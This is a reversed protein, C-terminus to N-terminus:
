QRPRVTILVNVLFGSVVGAWLNFEFAERGARLAAVGALQQGRDFEMGADFLCYLMIAWYAAMMGTYLRMLNRRWGVPLRFIGCLPVLLLTCTLATLLAALGTLDDDLVAIPIMALGLAILGAIWNSQRIEERTLALRGFRNLRLLLNFLPKALWSLLAFGFLACLAPLAFPQLQPENQAAAGLARQLVFLGVIVTWQTAPSLRGMWLFFGLMQRYLWYRARLSEILGERAFENTPDIRLSERFHHLAEGPKRAHLLAWGRGTHALSDQPDRRLAEATEEVADAKRGLRLLAMTRVASCGAHTPDYSLGEEAAHVAATANRLELFISARVAHFSANTPDIRLAEAISEESEKWRYQKILLRAQAYHAYSLGPDFRIAQGVERQAPEVKGQDLYCLALVAHAFAHGPDAALAQKLEIEAASYRNQQYLLLGREFHLDVPDPNM